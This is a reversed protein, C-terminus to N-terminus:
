GSAHREALEKITLLQKRMMALDGWALLRRRLRDCHATGGTDLRVALRSSREGAARVTYSVAMPGFIRAASPLGVGTIHRDREFATIKFVMMRQGVALEEVGPTLERPSRRGLNDLWDYSYPAVKLQCAWRYVVAPPADVGVARYLSLHPMALLGDCPWAGAIEAGTAGWCWPLRTRDTVGPM